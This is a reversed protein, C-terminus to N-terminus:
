VEFFLLDISNRHPLCFFLPTTSTYYNKTRPSETQKPGQYPTTKTNHQTQEQNISINLKSHAGTAWVLSGLHDNEPQHWFIYLSKSTKPTKGWNTSNTGSNPHHSTQKQLHKTLPFTSCYSSDYFLLTLFFVMYFFFLFCRLFPLIVSLLFFFVISFVYLQLSM